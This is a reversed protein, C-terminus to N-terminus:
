FDGLKTRTDLEFDAIKVGLHVEYTTNGLRLHDGSELQARGRVRRGNRLTGNKSGMDQVHAIRVDGSVSIRAHRRSCEADEIKIDCQADRGLVYVRNPLMEIRHGESTKLYSKSAVPADNWTGAV